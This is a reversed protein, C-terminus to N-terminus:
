RSQMKEMVTTKCAQLTAADFNMGSLSKEGSAVPMVCDKVLGKGQAEGGRYYGDKMCAEAIPKCPNAAFISCSITALVFAILILYIKKM